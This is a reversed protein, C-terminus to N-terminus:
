NESHEEEDQPHYKIALCNLQYANKNQHLPFQNFNMEACQPFNTPSFNLGTLMNLNFINCLIQEKTIDM